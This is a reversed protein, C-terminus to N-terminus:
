NSIKIDILNPAELLNLLATANNCLSFCLIAWMIASICVNACMKLPLFGILGFFRQWGGGPDGAQTGVLYSGERSFRGRSAGVEEGETM